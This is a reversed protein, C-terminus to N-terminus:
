PPRAGDGPTALPLRGQSTRVCSGRRTCLGPGRRAPRTSRWAGAGTPRPCPRHGPLLCPGRAGAEAGEDLVLCEVQDLRDRIPEPKALPAAFREALLRGGANTVTRDIAALLSGERGGGPEGAARPQPADGSRDADRHAARAPVSPRPAAAPRETHARSLRPRCRGGRDGGSRFGWGTWLPLGSPKACAASPPSATSARMRCRPSSPATSARRPRSASTLRAPALIEGPALKALSAPLTGPELPETVFAGTSIDVRALGLEGGTEAVAVLWNSRRADLLGEETLTGATVIRVVDRRVLAKGPRRRAEAPDELQECIAVRFGKRILRHLYVEASHVPVGCMPIDDGAHRGRKTLAVDLAPAAARADEFFLEYFDGMRFFLLADPHQRKLGRYQAIM